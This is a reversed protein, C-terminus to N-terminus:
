SYRRGAAEAAERPDGPVECYVRAASPFAQLPSKDRSCGCIRQLQARLMTRARGCRRPSNERHARFKQQLFLSGSWATVPMAMVRLVMKVAVPM